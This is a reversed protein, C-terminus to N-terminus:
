RSVALGALVSLGSIRYQGKIGSSQQHGSKNSSHRTLDRTHPIAQDISPAKKGEECSWTTELDRGLVATFFLTELKDYM